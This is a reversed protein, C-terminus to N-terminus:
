LGLQGSRMGPERRKIPMSEGSTSTLSGRIFLRRPRITRKGSCSRRWNGRGSGGPCHVEGLGLEHTKVARCRGPDGSALQGEVVLYFDEDEGLTFERTAFGEAGESRGVSAIAYTRGEIMLGDGVDAGLLEDLPSPGIEVPAKGEEQEPAPWRTRLGRGSIM